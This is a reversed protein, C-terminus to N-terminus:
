MTWGALSRKLNFENYKNAYISSLISLAFDLDKKYKPIKEM